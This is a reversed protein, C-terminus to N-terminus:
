RAAGPGDALIEDLFGAIAAATREPAEGMPLHGVGELIELRSDPIMEHFTQADYPPTVRDQAGWLILTPTTIEGLREGYQPERDAVARLGAARRNGPHRM